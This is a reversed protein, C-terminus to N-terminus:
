RRYSRILDCTPFISNRKMGVELTVPRLNAPVPALASSYEKDCLLRAVQDPVPGRKGVRWITSFAKEALVPHIVVPLASCGLCEKLRATLSAMTIVEPGCVSYTLHRGWDKPNKIVNLIATVVDDVFIPCIKVAGGGIMPALRYRRIFKILSELGETIGPGYVESPRIILWDLGSSRVEQEALQKSEGYAGANSPERSTATASSLFLFRRVGCRRAAEILNRTGGVNVDFYLKSDPTRTIAALHVILDVGECAVRLSAFDSLSGSVREVFNCAVRSKYDLVRLHLGKIQNLPLILRSGLNGTAGSILIRM